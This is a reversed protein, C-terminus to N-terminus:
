GNFPGHMDEPIGLKKRWFLATSELRSNLCSCALNSYATRILREISM